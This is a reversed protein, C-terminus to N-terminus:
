QKQISEIQTESMKKYSTQYFINVSTAIFYYSDNIFEENCALFQTCQGHSASVTVDM